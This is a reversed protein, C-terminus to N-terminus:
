DTCDCPLVTDMFHPLDTDNDRLQALREYSFRSQTGFFGIFNNAVVSRIDRQEAELDRGYKQEIEIWWGLDCPTNELRKDLTHNM